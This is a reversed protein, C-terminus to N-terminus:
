NPENAAQPTDSSEQPSDSVSSESHKTYQQVLLNGIGLPSSKALHQGIFLDFMGGFSDSQDGSFLGDELSNRMEKLMMSLFVSEFEPAMEQLKDPSSQMAQDISNVQGQLVSTVSSSISEM